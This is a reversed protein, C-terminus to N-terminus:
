RRMRRRLVADIEPDGLQGLWQLLDPYTSPNEAITPRLDPRSAAISMLEPLPTAPDAAAAAQPDPPTQPDPPAPPAPPAPQHTAVTSADIAFPQAPSEVRPPTVM